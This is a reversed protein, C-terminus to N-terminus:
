KAQAEAILTDILYRVTEPSYGYSTLTHEIVPRVSRGMAEPVEATKAEADTVTHEKLDLQGPIPPTPPTNLLARTYDLAPTM